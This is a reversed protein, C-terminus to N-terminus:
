KDKITNLGFFRSFITRIKRKMFNMKEQMATLVNLTMPYIKLSQILNLETIRIEVDKMVFGGASM